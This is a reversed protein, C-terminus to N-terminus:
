DPLRALEDAVLRVLSGLRWHEPVAVDTLGEEHAVGSCVPGVCAALVPGNLAALVDDARDVSRALAMMNRVAPGSTFTVADVAGDAVADILRVAREAEGPAEWRYVPVDVVEAGAARLGAGLSPDDQGHRQVAVRSGDIGTSVLHACVEALQETPARWWVDLGASRLAGAVKPGRAAIRAHALVELLAGDLGWGAAASIWTRIGIGTNAVVFDPPAAILAETALRLPGDDTLLVTAMMPGHLVEFGFRRLMVAQEEGRRDATVGVTRVREGM